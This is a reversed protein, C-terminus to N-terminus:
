ARRLQAAVAQLFAAPQVPKVLYDDFGAELARARHNERSYASLAIAPMTAVQADAHGRVLRMLQLGDVEPMAIDSVLLAPPAARLAALASV